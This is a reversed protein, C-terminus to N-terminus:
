LLLSSSVGGWNGQGCKYRNRCRLLSSLASNNLHVVLFFPISAVMQSRQSRRIVLPNPLLSSLWSPLALLLSQPPISPWAPRSPLL